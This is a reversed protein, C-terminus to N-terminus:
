PGKYFRVGTAFGNVDPSFRVGLEVSHADNVSAANPKETAGFLSYSVTDANSRGGGLVQFAGLALFAPLLLCLTTAVGLRRARGDHGRRPGTGRPIVVKAFYPQQAGAHSRRAAGGSFAG